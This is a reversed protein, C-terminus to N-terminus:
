LGSIEKLFLSVSSFIQGHTWNWVREQGTGELEKITEGPFVEKIFWKYM